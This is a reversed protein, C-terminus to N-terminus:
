NFAQQFNILFQSSEPGSLDLECNVNNPLINISTSVISYADGPSSIPEPQNCTGDSNVAYFAKTSSEVLFQVSYLGAIFVIKQM